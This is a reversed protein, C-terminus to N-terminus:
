LHTSVVSSFFVLETIICGFNVAVPNIIQNTVMAHKNLIRINLKAPTAEIVCISVSVSGDSRATSRTNVYSYCESKLCLWEECLVMGYTMHAQVYIVRTYTRVYGEASFALSGIWVTKKKKKKKGVFMKIEVTTEMAVLGVRIQTFFLQQVISRARGCFLQEMGLASESGTHPTLSEIRSRGSEVLGFPLMAMLSVVSLDHKNKEATIKKLSM